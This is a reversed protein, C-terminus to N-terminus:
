STDVCATEMACADARLCTQPAVALLRRRVRARAFRKLMRAVADELNDMLRRLDRLSKVAVGRTFVRLRAGTRTYRWGCPAGHIRESPLPPAHRGRHVALAVVILKAEACAERIAGRLAKRCDVGVLAGALVILELV